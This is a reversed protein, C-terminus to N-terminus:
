SYFSIAKKYCNTYRVSFVLKLTASENLRTELRFTWGWCIAQRTHSTTVKFQTTGHLNSLLKVAVARRGQAM